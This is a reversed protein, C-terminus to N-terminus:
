EDSCWNMKANLCTIVVGIIPSFQVAIDLLFYKWDFYTSYYGDYTYVSNALMFIILIAASLFSLVAPIYWVKKLTIDGTYLLATIAVQVFSIIFTVIYIGSTGTFLSILTLLASFGYGIAVLKNKKGILLGIFVAM